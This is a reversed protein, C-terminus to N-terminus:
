EVAQYLVRTIDAILAASQKQDALGRVLVILVFPRRAYVIAADHHIKTIEGTKHAVATGPPLGAPIAENFKQRKLIAIMQGSASADVARSRAIAEFLSLLARATTTNNIGKAFAKGDEVWRRVQMGDAHLRRITQRINEVGLKDILLNAALNSSGTIMVECLQGLTMTKGLAKYVEHDSDEAPDLHYTSGDAISYFDNKVPLPDDLRLKGTRVQGYLEIMVPVKMTSAAHFSLDPQILLEDRGDLTRFAVAVEAGSPRILREVEKRARVGREPTALLSAACWALLPIVMAGQWLIAKLYARPFRPRM